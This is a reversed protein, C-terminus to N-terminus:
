KTAQWRTACKPLDGRITARARVQSEHLEHLENLGPLGLRSLNTHEVSSDEIRLDERQQRPHAM